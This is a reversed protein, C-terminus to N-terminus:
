PSQLSSPRLEGNGISERRIQQKIYKSGFFTRLLLSTMAEQVRLDLVFFELSLTFTSFKGSHLLLMCNM